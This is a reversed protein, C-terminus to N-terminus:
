VMVTETLQGGYALYTQVSRAMTQLRNQEDAGPLSTWERRLKKIATELRGALVDPLAGRYAIRGVAAMDQSEPSFDPLGMLRRTEDWSTATIQYAGAATSCLTKGGSQWCRGKIRPHDAFSAFTGGGVIMQYAAPQLSSEGLRIVRLFAQVNADRLVSSEVRGMNAVRILDFGTLDQMDEGLAWAVGYVGIQERRAMYWAAFGVAGGLGILAAANM